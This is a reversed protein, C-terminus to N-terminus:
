YKVVKLNIGGWKPIPSKLIQQVIATQNEKVKNLNTKLLLKWNAKAVKREEKATM